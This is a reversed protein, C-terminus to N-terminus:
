VPRGRTNGRYGSSSGRDGIEVKVQMVVGYVVSNGDAVANLTENMFEIGAELLGTEDIKNTDIEFRYDISQEGLPMLLCQGDTLNIAGGPDNRTSVILYADQSPNARSLNVSGNLTQGRPATAEYVPPSISSSIAAFVAVCAVFVHLPKLM